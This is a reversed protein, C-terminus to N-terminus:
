KAHNREKTTEPETRGKPKAIIDNMEYTCFLKSTNYIQSKRQNRKSRAAIARTRQKWGGERSRQGLSTQDRIISKIAVFGVVLLRPIILCLLTIQTQHIPRKGSKHASKPFPYKEFCVNVQHIRKLDSGFQVQEGKEEELSESM